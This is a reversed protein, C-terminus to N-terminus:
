SPAIHISIKSKTTKKQSMIPAIAADIMDLLPRLPHAPKARPKISPGIPTIM